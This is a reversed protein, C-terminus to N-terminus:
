SERVYGTNLNRHVSHIAVLIIKVTVMRPIILQVETFVGMARGKAVRM